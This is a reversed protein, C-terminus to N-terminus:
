SRGLILKAATAVCAGTSFRVLTDGLLSGIVFVNPVAKSLDVHKRITQYNITGVDSNLVHSAYKLSGQRGARMEIQSISMKCLHGTAMRITVGTKKIDVIEANPLGVYARGDIEGHRLKMLEFVRKYEPYLHESYRRLPTPAGDSSEWKYIHVVPNSSSLVADAASVGTGVVLTLQADPDLPINRCKSCVSSGNVMFAGTALVIQQAKYQKRTGNETTTIFFDTGIPEINQVRGRQVKIGLWRAYELYYDGVERRLPRYYEQPYSGTRNKEFVSFQFGPLSFMEAYGLVRCDPQDVTFDTWQGGADSDSIIMFDQHMSPRKVWRIRSHINNLHSYDSESSVRLSDMLLNVPLTDLGYFSYYSVAVYDLVAQDLSAELMNPHKVLINHIVPDPHPGYTTPDYEPINGDLIYSLLLASPGSGIIAIM